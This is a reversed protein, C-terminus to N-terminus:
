IYRPNITIQEAEVTMMKIGVTLATQAPLTLQTGPRFRYLYEVDTKGRHTGNKLATEKPLIMCYIDDAEVFGIQALTPINCLTGDPILVQIDQLLQGEGDITVLDDNMLDIKVGAKATLVRTIPKFLLPIPRVSVDRKWIPASILVNTDVFPVYIAENALCKQYVRPEEIVPVIPGVPVIPQMTISNDPHITFTFQAM